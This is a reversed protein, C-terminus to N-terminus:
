ILVGPDQLSSFCCGQQYFKSTKLIFHFDRLIETKKGLVTITTGLHIIKKMLVAGSLTLLFKGKKRLNLPSKFNGVYCCLVGKNLYPSLHSVSSNIHITITASDAKNQCILCFEEKLKITRTKNSSQHDKSPLPSIASFPWQIDCAGRGFPRSSNSSTGWQPIARPEYLESYRQTLQTNFPCLM